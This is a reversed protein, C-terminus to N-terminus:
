LGENLKWKKYYHNSACDAMLVFKRKPCQFRQSTPIYCKHWWFAIGKMYKSKINALNKAKVGRSM